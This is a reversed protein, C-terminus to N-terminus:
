RSFGGANKEGKLCFGKQVKKLYKAKIKENFYDYPCSAYKFQQGTPRNEFRKLYKPLTNSRRLDLVGFDFTSKTFGILEGAKMKLPSVPINRAGVQDEDVKKEGLHTKIRKSLTELHDFRYVIECGVQFILRWHIDKSDELRFKSYLILYSDGPAYIPVAKPAIARKGIHKSNKLFIYTHNKLYNGPTLGWGWIEEIKSFDTVDHTFIPSKVKECQEIKAQDFIDYGFADVILFFSFICKLM